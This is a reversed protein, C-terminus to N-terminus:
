LGFPINLDALRPFSVTSRRYANPEYFERYEHWHKDACHAHMCKFGPKGDPYVFVASEAKSRSSHLQVWPCTVIYQLGGHRERVNYAINHEHLFGEVDFKKGNHYSSFHPVYLKIPEKTKTYIQAERNIYPHPDYSVFRKSAINSPALDLTIGHLITPELDQGQIFSFTKNAFDEAIADFHQKHKMGDAIPILVFVGLGSVSLGVYAVYPSKSILQKLAEWDYIAPNKDADIDIGIVKNREVINQEGIGNVAIGSVIGAPLKKKLDAIKDHNRIKDALTPCLARIAMIDNIYRYQHYPSVFDGITQPIINYGNQEEATLVVRRLRTMQRTFINVKEM